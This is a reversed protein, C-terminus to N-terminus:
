KMKEGQFFKNKKVLHRRVALGRIASVFRFMKDFFQSINSLIM